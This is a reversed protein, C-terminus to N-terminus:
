NCKISSLSHTALKIDGFNTKLLDCLVPVIINESSYHGADFLSIGSNQADIFQNHKVDATILADFGDAIADFIFNGGSGSCVLATNIPKGGDCYRVSFGLKEKIIGALYDSCLGDFKCKRIIFDDHCVFSEIDKGGLIRCLTETVGDKAIDLNTHMSIVSIGSKILEFVVSDATVSKIGDFIVPHHTVILNAGLTKAKEVASKDCDLCVLVSKVIDNKDGVLLGVNDFGCATDLPFKASLFKSIDEVTTM